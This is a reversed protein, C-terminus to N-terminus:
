NKSSSKKRLLLIIGQAMCSLLFLPLGYVVFVFPFLNSLEGERITAVIILVVSAIFANLGAKAFFNDKRRVVWLLNLLVAIIGTVWYFAIPFDEEM